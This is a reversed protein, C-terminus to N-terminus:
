FMFPWDSSTHSAAKAFPINQVRDAGVILRYAVVSVRSDVRHGSYHRSGKGLQNLLFEGCAVCGALSKRMSSFLTGGDEGLNTGSSTKVPPRSQEYLTWFSSFGTLTSESQGM